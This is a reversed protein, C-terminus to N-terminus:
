PPAFLKRRICERVLAQRNRVGFTGNLRSITNRVTQPTRNRLVSIEATSRGEVLLALVERDSRSLSAAVSDRPPVNLAVCRQRIWSDAALESAHGELYSLMRADPGAGTMSLAVAMARNAFGLESYLGFARRYCHRARFSEGKADALIGQVHFRYAGIPDSWGYAAPTDHREANMAAVAGSVDGASALVEAVALPILAHDWRKVSCPELAMFRDRITMAADACALRQNYRLLVTARQCLSALHFQATPAASVSERVALLAEGPRGHTEYHLSRAWQFGYRRSHVGGTFLACRRARQEIYSWLSADVLEAAILSMTRVIGEEMGVNAASSRDLVELSGKFRNVADSYDNRQLALYGRYMFTRAYNAGDSAQVGALAKEVADFKGRQYHALAIALSLESRVHPSADPWQARVAHLVALASDAAGSRVLVTGRLVGAMLAADGHMGGIREGLLALAEGHRGQAILAHCQALTRQSPEGTELSAAAAESPEFCREVDAGLPAPQARPGDGASAGISM